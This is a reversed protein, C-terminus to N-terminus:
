LCDHWRHVYVTKNTGELDTCMTIIKEQGIVNALAEQFIYFLLQSFQYGQRLESTIPVFDLKEDKLTTSSVPIKYISKILNLFKWEIELKSLTKIM